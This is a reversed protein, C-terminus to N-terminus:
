YTIIKIITYITQQQRICYRSIFLIEFRFALSHCTSKVFFKERLCKHTFGVSYPIYYSRIKFVNEYIQLLVINSINLIYSIYIM